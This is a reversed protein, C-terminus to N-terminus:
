QNYYLNQKHAAETMQAEVFNTLQALKSLLYNQYSVDYANPKYNPFPLQQPTHGLMM